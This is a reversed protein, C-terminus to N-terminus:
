YNPDAVNLQDLLGHTHSTVLYKYAHVPLIPINRVFYTFMTYYQTKPEHKNSHKLEHLLMADIKM